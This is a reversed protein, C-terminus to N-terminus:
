VLNTIDITIESSSGQQIRNGISFDFIVQNINKPLFSKVKSALSNSIIEADASTLDGNKIYIKVKNALSGPIKYSFLNDITEINNRTGSTIDFNIPDIQTYCNLYQYKIVDNYLTTDYVRLHKVTTDTANYSKTSIIDPIPDLSFNPIGIYFPNNLYNKLPKIGTVVDLDVERQGNVFILTKGTVLDANITICNKGPIINPIEVINSNDGLVNGAGSYNVSWNGSSITDWDDATESSNWIRDVSQAAFENDFRTVFCYKNEFQKFTQEMSYVNTPNTFYGLRDAFNYGLDNGTISLNYSSLTYGTSVTSNLTIKDAILNGSLDRSFAVPNVQYDETVFDIKYGSVASTSLNISSLLERNTDFVKLKNDTQIYLKEDFSNIDWIKTNSSLAIFTTDEEFDKFIVYQSSIYDDGSIAAGLTDNLNIGRIGSMVGYETNNNRRMISWNDDIAISDNPEVILTYLDINYGGIIGATAKVTAKSGVNFMARTSYNSSIMAKVLDDNNEKQIDNTFSIRSIRGGKNDEGVVIVDNNQNVYLVDKIASIGDITNTRLLNFNTDYYHLKNDQPIIVTPTFYFNKVVGLGTNFINGILQHAKPDELNPIDLEFTFNFSNKSNTNDTPLTFTDYSSADVVLTDTEAGIFASDNASRPTFNEKVLSNDFKDLVKNVYNKGVRAYYYTGSPELMLTSNVDYYSLGSLGRLLIIEDIETRSASLPLPINNLNGSEASLGTINQPLYFRDYWVGSLGNDYLWSCLYDGKLNYNNVNDGRTSIDKYIRDSFYPSEAAYAGSEQLGADNLNLVTYPLINDPLTFKSYKDPQFNYEATYFNYQLKLFEESTEQTESNLIAHYQRQNQKDSFPLNKNVNHHNSIQNKLNFYNLNSYINDGSLYSDEYNSYMIFNYKQDSITKNEDVEAGSTYYVFNNSKNLYNTDLDGNNSLTITSETYDDNSPDRDATITDTSTTSIRILATSLTETATEGQVSIRLNNGNKIARFNSTTILGDTNPLTDFVISDTAVHYVLYKRYSSDSTYINCFLESDITTLAVTFAQASPTDYTTVTAASSLTSSNRDITLYGADSDGFQLTTAFSSSVDEPINLDFIDQETQANTLYTTSYNKNLIDNSSLLFNYELLNMGQQTNFENPVSLDLARDPDELLFNVPKINSYSRIEVPM